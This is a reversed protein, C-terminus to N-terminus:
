GLKAQSNARFALGLSFWSNQPENIFLDFFFMCIRETVNQGIVMQDSAMEHWKWLEFTKLYTM